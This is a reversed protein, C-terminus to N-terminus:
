RLNEILSETIADFVPALKEHDRDEGQTILVFTKNGCAFSRARCFIVLDLYFFSMDFGEAPLGCLDEQVADAEVNDYELRMARLVDVALRHPDDPALYVHLAWFSGSPSEVSIEYPERDEEWLTWNEPYQFQVGHKDYVATM